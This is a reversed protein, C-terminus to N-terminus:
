HRNRFAKDLSQAHAPYIQRLLGRLILFVAFIALAVLIKSIDIGMFGDHWVTIVENWFTTVDDITPAQEAPTEAQVETEAPAEAQNAM